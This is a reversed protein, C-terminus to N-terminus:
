KNQHKLMFRIFYHIEPSRALKEGLVKYGYLFKCNQLTDFDFSVKYDTFTLTSNKGHIPGLFRHKISANRHGGNGDGFDTFELTDTRGVLLRGGLYGFCLGNKHVFLPVTKLRM